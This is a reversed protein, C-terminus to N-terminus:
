VGRKLTVAALISISVAFAVLVALEFGVDILNSGALMIARFGDVAYTLPLIASLWQLYDPM